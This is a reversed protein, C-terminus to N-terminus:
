RIRSEATTDGSPAATSGDFAAEVQRISVGDHSVDLDLANVIFGRAAVAISNQYISEPRATYGFLPGM